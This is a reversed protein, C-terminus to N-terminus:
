VSTNVRNHFNILLQELLSQSPIILLKSDPFIGMLLDAVDDIYMDSCGFIDINLLEGLENLDMASQNHPLHIGAARLVSPTDPRAPLGELDEM